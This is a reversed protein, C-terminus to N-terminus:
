VTPSASFLPRNHVELEPFSVPIGKRKAGPGGPAIRSRKAPRFKRLLIM